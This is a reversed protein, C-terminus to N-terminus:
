GFYKSIKGSLWSKIQKSVSGNSQINVFSPIDDIHVFAYHNIEEDLDVFFMNHSLRRLKFPTERISNKIELTGIHSPIDKLFRKVNDLQQKSYYLKLTNISTPLKTVDIPLQFDQVRLSTLHPPLDDLAVPRYLDMSTISSPLTGKTWQYPQGDLHGFNATARGPGQMSSSWFTLSTPLNSMDIEIPEFNNSNDYNTLISYISLHELRPFTTASILPIHAPKALVISLKKLSPLPQIPRALMDSFVLRLTELTPHDVMQHPNNLEMNIISPPLNILPYSHGSDIKLMTLSPPLADGDMPHTYLGSIVLSKLTDPLSGKTIPINFHPGLNVHELHLPLTPPVPSSNWTYGGVIQLSKLGEPLVDRNLPSNFDGSILLTNLTNPFLHRHPTWEEEGEFDGDHRITISMSTLPVDQMPLTPNLVHLEFEVKGSTTTTNRGTGSTLLENLDNWFTQDYTLSNHISSFIISMNVGVVNKIINNLNNILMMNNGDYAIPTAGDKIVLSNATDLENVPYVLIKHQQQTLCDVTKRINCYSKLVDNKTILSSSSSTTTTLSLSSSIINKVNDVLYLYEHRREFLRKSVLTLVIRDVNFELYDVIISLVTSPLTNLAM